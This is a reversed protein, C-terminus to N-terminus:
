FIVIIRKHVNYPHHNCRGGLYLGNRSNMSQCPIMMSLRQSKQVSKISLLNRRFLCSNLQFWSRMVVHNSLNNSTESLFISVM